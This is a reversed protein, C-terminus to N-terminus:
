KVGESYLWWAPWAKKVYFMYGKEHWIKEGSSAGHGYQTENWLDVICRGLFRGENKASFMGQAFYNVENRDYCEGAVCAQGNDVGYGDWLPTDYRGRIIWDVPPVRRSIDYYVALMLQDIQSKSINWDGSPLRGRRYFCEVLNSPSCTADSHTGMSILEAHPDPEDPYGDDDKDTDDPNRISDWLNLNYRAICAADINGNGDVCNIDDGVAIDDYWKEACDIPNSSYACWWPNHGTPDVLNVPNGETYNWKNLSLPRNYDGAWTDRSIFRGNDSNYYRARLYTLGNADRSEGTFAYSTQSAGISSVVDGYPAYSQTLTVAGAPDALQRVSGLADGLFYETISATQSIRGNGYLYINTGDALVQTLGTNLDLTYNVGNQQHRDGLGSYFFLSKVKRIWKSVIFIVMVYVSRLM